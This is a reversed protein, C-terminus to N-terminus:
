RRAISLDDHYRGNVMPYFYRLRSYILLAGSWGLEGKSPFVLPIAFAEGGGFPHVRVLSWRGLGGLGWFLGALLM